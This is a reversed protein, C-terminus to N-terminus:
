RTQRVATCKIEAIAEDFALASIAVATWAPFPAQTFYRDKVTAFLDSTDFTTHYSVLEVVDAFGFGAEELVERTNEFARVLQTEPDASLSGDAELGIQGAVYLTEGALVAPSHHFARSLEAQSPPVVALNAPSM